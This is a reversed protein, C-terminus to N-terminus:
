TCTAGRRPAVVPYGNDVGVQYETIFENVRAAFAGPEVTHRIGSVNQGGRAHLCTRAAGPLTPMMAFLVM